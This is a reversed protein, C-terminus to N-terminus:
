ACLEVLRDVVEDLAVNERDGTRRDKIEVKHEALGRGVILITPVGLLESDNFKVGPSVSRRDDLLV